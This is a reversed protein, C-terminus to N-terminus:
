NETHMDGEGTKKTKGGLNAIGSKGCASSCPPWCFYVKGPSCQGPSRSQAPHNRTQEPPFSGSRSIIEFVKEEKQGEHLGM